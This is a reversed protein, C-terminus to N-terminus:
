IAGTSLSFPLSCSINLSRSRFSSCALASLFSFRSRTLLWLGTTGLSLLMAGPLAKICVARFDMELQPPVPDGLDLADIKRSLDVFTTNATRWEQWAGEFEKWRKADDPPQPLTVYTKWAAEYGERAQAINDYQRMRLSKELSTNLLTRTAAKIENAKEKILLVNEIAPTKVLGVEEIAKDNESLGYFGVFGVGLTIVALLGFSMFMKTALKLNKFM